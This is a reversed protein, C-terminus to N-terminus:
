FSPLVGNQKPKTKSKAKKAAAAEAVAQRSPPFAARLADHRKGVAELDRDIAEVDKDSKAKGPPEPPATFAPMAPAPAAPRSNVVFDPPASVDTALGAGKLLSKLPSDPQADQAHSPSPAFM